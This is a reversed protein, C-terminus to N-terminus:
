AMSEASELQDLMVSEDELLVPIGDDIPYLIKGDDTVLADRLPESLTTGGRNQLGGGLIASNVDRLLEGRVPTLGKHTVPCCLISLLRKDM